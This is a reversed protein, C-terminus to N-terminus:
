YLKLVCEREFYYYEFKSLEGGGRKKKKALLEASDKKAFGLGSDGRGGGSWTVSLTTFVDACALM